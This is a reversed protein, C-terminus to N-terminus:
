LGKTIQSKGSAGFSGIASQAAAVLPPASPTNQNILSALAQGIANLTAHTQAHMSFELEGGANVSTAGSISVSTGSIEVTVGEKNKFIIKGAVRHSEITLEKTKPDLTCTFHFPDAKYVGTDFIRTAGKNLNPLAKETRVDNLPFGFGEKADFYRWGLAGIEGEGEPDVPRADLGLPSLHHFASIGKGNDAFAGLQLGLFGDATYESWTCVSLDMM